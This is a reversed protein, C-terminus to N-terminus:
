RFTTMKSTITHQEMLRAVGPAVIGIILSHIQVHIELGMKVFVKLQDAHQRAPHPQSHSFVARDQRRSLIGHHQRM